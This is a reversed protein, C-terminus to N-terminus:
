LPIETGPTSKSEVPVFFNSSKCAIDYFSDFLAPNKNHVFQVTTNVKFQGPRDNGHEIIFQIGTSLHDESYMIDVQHIAFFHEAFFLYPKHM